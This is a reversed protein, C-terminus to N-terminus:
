ECSWNQGDWVIKSGDDFRVEDASDPPDKESGNRYSALWEEAKTM